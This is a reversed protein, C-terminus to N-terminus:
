AAEPTQTAPQAPTRMFLHPYKVKVHSPIGRTLWNQVRQAGGRKDLDLVEAVKSPGGLERILAADADIQVASIGVGRSDMAQETARMAAAIHELHELAVQLIEERVIQRVETPTM